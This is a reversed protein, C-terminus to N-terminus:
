ALAGELEAVLRRLDGPAPGRRGYTWAELRRLQPLLDRRGSHELLERGTWSPDAAQGALARALWGWTARLAELTRGAGLHAELEARWAGADRLPEPGAGGAASSTVAAAGQAPGGPPRRQIARVLVVLGLALGALALALALGRAWGAPLSVADLVRGLREVLAAQFRGALHGLYATWGADAGAGASQAVGLEAALREALAPDGRVPALEPPPGPAVPEVTM